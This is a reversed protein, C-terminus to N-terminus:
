PTEEAPPIEDDPPTEDDPADEDIQDSLLGIFKTHIRYTDQNNGSWRWVSENNPALVEYRRENYVIEDGKQPELGLDDVTIIFDFSRVRTTLGFSDDARFLTKGVTALVTFSEGGFRYYEVPDSAFAQRQAALFESAQKLLNM